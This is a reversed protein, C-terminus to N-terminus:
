TVRCNYEVRHTSRGKTLFRIVSHFGQIDDQVIQPKKELLTFKESKQKSTWTDLTGLDRFKFCLYTGTSRFKINEM